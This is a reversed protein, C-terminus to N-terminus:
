GVAAAAPRRAARVQRAITAFRLAATDPSAAAGPAAVFRRMVRARGVAAAAFRRGAQARGVAAAAAFRRPERARPVITAGKVAAAPAVRALGVAAPDVVPDVMILPMPRRAVAPAVGSLAVIRVVAVTAVVTIRRGLLGRKL